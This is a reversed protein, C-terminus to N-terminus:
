QGGASSAPPAAPSAVAKAPSPELGTWIAEAEADRGKAAYLYALKLRAADRDPGDASAKEAEAIGADLGGIRSLVAAYRTGAWWDRSWVDVAMGSQQHCSRCDKARVAFSGLAVLRGYRDAAGRDDGMGELARGWARLEDGDLESVPIRSRPGSRM